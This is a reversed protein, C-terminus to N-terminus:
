LKANKGSQPTESLYRWIFCAILSLVFCAAGFTDEHPFPLLHSLPLKLTAPHFVANEAIYFWGGFGFVFVTFSIAKLM